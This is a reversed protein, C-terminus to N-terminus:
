RLSPPPVVGTACRELRPKISRSNPKPPSSSSSSVTAEAAGAGVVIRVAVLLSGAFGCSAAATGSGGTLGGAGDAFVARGACGAGAPYARADTPEVGAVPGEGASMTRERPMHSVAFGDISGGAFGEVAAPSTFAGGGPAAPEPM